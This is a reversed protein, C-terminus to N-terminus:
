KKKKAAAATATVPTVAIKIGHQEFDKKLEFLLASKVDLQTGGVTKGTIKLTLGSGNLDSIRAFHPAEIVADKLGTKSLLRQGAHNIIHELLTVDSDAAVTLDLNIQGYGMTKNTSFTINGNPIYHVSGNLDRLVTTRLGISQVTGSVGILEVFDGVRYQNESIIFMGSVFDKILSQAGFIFAASIIGASAFFPATNIGLLSIIVVIAVVWVGFHFLAKTLGNLTKLRKERDAKTSFMDTRLTHEFVRKLLRASYRNILVVAALVIGIRVGTTYNRVIWERANQPILDWMGQFITAVQYIM